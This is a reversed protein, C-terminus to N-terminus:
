IIKDRHLIKKSFSIYQWVGFLYVLVMGWWPLRMDVAAFNLGSFWHVIVIVYKMGFHTLYAFLNAVPTIFFSIVVTCFGFLMLWPVIWLILVNVIPAVISLRGFQFLILPLTATIAALTTAFSEKTGLFDPIKRFWYEFLPTLYVIGITSLFSLQFGVDWFLIFPNFFTMIAATFVLVNGIRALRGLQKALLVLFAMIGARVASGSAGTMIVFIFIGTSIFYFAKPRPIYFVNILIAMLAAAIISINFGSIAVIHTVGTRQFDNGLDGLGGRYGYLIGAMFSAEPESWLLSLKAAFADKTTLLYKLIDNGEGAGIKQIQPRLCTLSVGYRALYMDYRFVPTDPNNKDVIPKPAELDCVIKLKDGYNYRPYLGSKMYVNGILKQNNITGGKVPDRGSATILQENNIAVIYRVGDTRVDPDAAVHGEFVADKNQYSRIESTPFAYLYRTAGLMFCFLIAAFFRSVPEKWFLIIMVIASLLVALFHIALQQIDFYIQVVSAAAVGCLFLFCFALFTKSKSNIIQHFM